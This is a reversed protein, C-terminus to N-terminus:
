TGVAPAPVIRRFMRPGDPVDAHRGGNSSRIDPPSGGEGVPPYFGGEPRSPVPLNLAISSM